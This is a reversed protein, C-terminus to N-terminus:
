HRTVDNGPDRGHFMLRACLEFDLDSPPESFGIARHNRKFRSDLWADVQTVAEYDVHPGVEFRHRRWIDRWGVIRLSELPQVSAHPLDIERRRVERIADRLRLPQNAVTGVSRVEPIRVPLKQTVRQSRQPKGDTLSACGLLQQVTLRV